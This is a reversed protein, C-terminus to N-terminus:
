SLNDIGVDLVDYVIDVGLFAVDVIHYFTDDEGCLFEGDEIKCVQKNELFEGNNDFVPVVHNKTLKIQKTIGQNNELTLTYIDKNLIKQLGSFNQFGDNTLIQIGKTNEIIM